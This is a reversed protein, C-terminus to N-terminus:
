NDIRPALFFQVKLANFATFELRLPKKSSYELTITDSSACGLARVIKSIYDINYSSKSNEKVAVEQLLNETNNKEDITVMATGADNAGSFTVATKGAITEIGINDSMVHIDNLVKDLASTGIVIKNDFSLKPLPSANADASEILNMKYYRTYGGTTKINLSNGKLGIEISDNSNSRKIIKAFDSMKLGFKITSPCEYREFASNPWSLDVLAVHSPDMSRFTLGTSRAEFSAEDVITMIVSSVSKWIESSKSVATFQLETVSESM